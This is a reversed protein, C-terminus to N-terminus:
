ARGPALSALPRRILTVLTVTWAWYHHSWATLRRLGLWDPRALLAYALFLPTLGFIIVLWLGPLTFDHIPLGNLATVSMQILGGSPDILFAVGGYLGGAGLVICCMSLLRAALPRAPQQTNM